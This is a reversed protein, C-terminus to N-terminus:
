PHPLSFPVAGKHTGPSQSTFQSLKQLIVTRTLPDVLFEDLKKQIEDVEQSANSIINDDQNEPQEAM